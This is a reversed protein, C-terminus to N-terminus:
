DQNLSRFNIIFGLFPNQTIIIFVKFLYQLINLDILLFAFLLKLHKITLHLM